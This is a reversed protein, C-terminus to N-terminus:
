SDLFDQIYSYLEEESTKGRTYVFDPALSDIQLESSHQLIDKESMEPNYARILICNYKDKFYKLENPFRIDSIIAYEYDKNSIKNDLLNCWIDEGFTGRCIETGIQQYYYRMDEKCRPKEKQFIDFLKDVVIKLEDALAYIPVHFKNSLKEALTTKGERAHGTILIAKM